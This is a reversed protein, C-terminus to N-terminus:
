RDKKDDDKADAPKDVREQDEAITRDDPPKACASLGGSSRGAVAIYNGQPRANRGSLPM